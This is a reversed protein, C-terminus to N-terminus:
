GRNVRSEDPLWNGLLAGQAVAGPVCTTRSGRRAALENRLRSPALQELGPGRHFIPVVELRVRVIKRSRRDRALERTRGFSQSRVYDSLTRQEAHSLKVRVGTDRM